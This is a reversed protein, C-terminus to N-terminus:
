INAKKLREEGLIKGLMGDQKTVLRHNCVLDDIDVPYGKQALYKSSAFFGCHIKKEAIAVANDQNIDEFTLAIDFDDLKLSSINTATVSNIKLEPFLDFLASLDQPVLYSAYGLAIFVRVEGKIERNELRIHSIEDLAERIKETKDIIRQAANTLSSGRGSTSILKVGLDHELNEIYKNITDVSTCLAEAAKRKGECQAIARLFLVSELLSIDKKSIMKDECISMPLTGLHDSLESILHM